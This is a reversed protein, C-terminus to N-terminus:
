GQESPGTYLDKFMTFKDLFALEIRGTPGNRQKGIIVEAKGRNPNEESRNYVEDRYIFLILDADQEIAGSERLDSMQPRKDERSESRRSLQSVAIVPLNLEKALAKLSRSIESIEQQRNEIMTRGRMLQLYDVVLMGLGHEGKLRRAKARLELITLAATDDIFIPADSLNGAALTLKPWDSESLFGTRIRTGEVRAESCLMRLVLQEKSMELSFIAVPVKKEIAAYQAINLCLATKGMSPRGAVIILDSPQFGATMLDLDKFGSPIGTVLEKKEYLKELTKFSSKVIERIPYFSPRVRNEAIQFIAREAEDLLGEVDERDQYGQTVIDTATEILKRLISKEKIIRAYYGINAATPITDILSAVYSAGGISDLQDRKRLENTLTILDAPEDRESLDLLSNYIKQHAERYFDDPTLVEMVKHIAGNEILVGGLVSQEAEINQPPMKHSSVNEEKM